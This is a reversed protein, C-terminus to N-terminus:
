NSFYRVFQLTKLADFWNNIHRKFTKAERCHAKAHDRAATLSCRKAYASLSESGGFDLGAPSTIAELWRKLLSFALPSYSQHWHHHVIQYLARGTGFPTRMSYRAAITIVPAAPMAFEGLKRLKNLLHFDEGANRKPFGRVAAYAEARFAICSGVSHYAYISGAYKLGAVYAHLYQEYVKVAECLRRDHSQHIFPYLMVQKDTKQVASFYDQPLIVDADTNFIWRSAVVKSEILACALDAGTKRALGVGDKAALFRQYCYDVTIININARDTAAFTLYDVTSLRSRNLYQYLANTQRDACPANVVVIVLLRENIHKLVQTLFENKEQYVPIVLVYDYHRHIALKSLLRVDREAYRTLYPHLM